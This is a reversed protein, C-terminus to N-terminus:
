TRAPNGIKQHAHKKHEVEWRLFAERLDAAIRIDEIRLRERRADPCEDVIYKRWWQGLILKLQGNLSRM